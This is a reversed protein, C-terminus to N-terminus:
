GHYWYLHYDEFKTMSEFIGEHLADQFAIHSQYKSTLFASKVWRPLEDEWIRLGENFEKRIYQEDVSFAEMEKTHELYWCEDAAVNSSEADALVYCKRFASLSEDISSFEERSIAVYFYGSEDYAYSAKIGEVNIDEFSLM